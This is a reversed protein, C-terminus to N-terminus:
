TQVSDQVDAEKASEDNETKAKKLMNKIRQPFNYTTITKYSAKVPYNVTVNLPEVAALSRKFMPRRELEGTEENRQWSLVPVVDKLIPIWKGSKPDFKKKPRRKKRGRSDIWDEMEWINREVPVMEWVPESSRNSYTGSRMILKGDKDLLYGDETFTQDKKKHLVRQITAFMSGAGKRRPKMRRMSRPIDTPNNLGPKPKDENAKFAKYANKTIFKWGEAAVLKVAESEKIRKVEALEDGTKLAICVLKEHKAENIRQREEIYAKKADAKEKKTLQPKSKKYVQVKKTVKRYEKEKEPEGAIRPPLTPIAEEETDGKLIVKGAIVPVNCYVHKDRKRTIERGTEEYTVQDVYVKKGKYPAPVYERRGIQMYTYDKYTPVREMVMKGNKNKVLETKWKKKPLLIDRETVETYHTKLEHRVGAIYKVKPWHNGRVSKKESEVDELERAKQKRQRLTYESCEEDSKKHSWSFGRQNLRQEERRLQKRLKASSLELKKEMNSKQNSEVQTPLSFLYLTKLRKELAEERQQLHLKRDEVTSFYFTTNYFDLEKPDKMYVEIDQLVDTPFSLDHKDLGILYRWDSRLSHSWESEFWANWLGCKPLYRLKDEDIGNVYIKHKKNVRPIVVVDLGQLVLTLPVREVELLHKYYSTPIPLRRRVQRRKISSKLHEKTLSFATGYQGKKWVQHYTCTGGHPLKKSFSAALYEYPIGQLIEELSIEYEYQKYYLIRAAREIM